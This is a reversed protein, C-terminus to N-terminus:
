RKKYLIWGETDIFEEQGGDGNYMIWEKGDTSKVYDIFEIPTKMNERIILDGSKFYMKWGEPNVFANQGNKDHYMIWKRGETDEVLDLFQIPEEMDDRIIMDWTNFHTKSNEIKEEYVMEQILREETYTLKELTEKNLMTVETSIGLSLNNKVIYGKKNGTKKSKTWIIICGIECSSLNMGFEKKENNQDNTVFTINSDSLNNLFRQIYNIDKGKISKGNFSNITDGVKLDNYIGKKDYQGIVYYTDNFYNLHLGNIKLIPLFENPEKQIENPYEPFTFGQVQRHYSIWQRDKKRQFEDLINEGNKLDHITNNEGFQKVYIVPIGKQIEANYSKFNIVTYIKNNKTRKDPLKIETGIKILPPGKIFFDSNNSENLHEIINSRSVHDIKETIKDNFFSHYSSNITNILYLRFRARTIGAYILEAKSFETDDDIILFLTPIEWGKFSHITSLKISGTKMYFNLKKQRRINKIASKFMYINKKEDSKEFEYFDNQSINPDVTIEYKEKFLDFYEKTEFMTTSKEKLINKRLEYDLDRLTEVNTSLIGIDSSHIDNEIIIDKIIRAVTTPKFHEIQHYELIADDFKLDLEPEPNLTDIEYKNCLISKQFNLALDALDSSFRHQEKLSENWVGAVTPVIPKKEKDLERDYINQKEDGFVVFEGGEKLYYNTILILWEKKYDQVEDIFIAEYKVIKNKVQEFHKPDDFNALSDIRVEYNRSQTVFFRHYNMINFNKWEYKERVNSINDRVYNVLSLNYTLILVIDNTRLHANVARKALVLTKGSGAVGKIKQRKGEESKILEKQAHTYNIEIGEELAHIPPKLHRRLKKAFGENFYFSEKNLRTSDLINEITEENLSDKGLYQLYQVSKKKETNDIKDIVKECIESEFSKSFFICSNVISYYRKETLAKELLGEIHLNIMDNRYSNVQEVPSTIKAKNKLLFWDGKDDIFYNDLNWDKVEFILIGADEKLLIIDPIDGNLYPQFYLEYRDDDSFCDFLFKILQNEGSTPPKKLRNIAEFSPYILAM